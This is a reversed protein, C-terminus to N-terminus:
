GGDGEDEAMLLKIGIWLLLLGGAIQLYPLKLLYVVFVTLVLMLVVVGASGWIFARKRHVPSLGRCALAIVVANDGSLVVNIFMIQTLAIVAESLGSTELM